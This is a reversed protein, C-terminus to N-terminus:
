RTIINVNTRWLLFFFLLFDLNSTAAAGATLVGEAVVVEASSPDLGLSSVTFRSKVARTSSTSSHNKIPNDHLTVRSCGFQSTQWVSLTLYIRTTQTEAYFERPREPKGAAKVTVVHLM